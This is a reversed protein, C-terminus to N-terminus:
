AQVAPLMCPLPMYDISFGMVSKPDANNTFNGEVFLVPQVGAGIAKGGCLGGSAMGSFVKQLMLSNAAFGAVAETAEYLAVYLRRLDKVVHLGM